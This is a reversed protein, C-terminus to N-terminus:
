RLSAFTRMVPFPRDRAGNDGFFTNYPWDRYSMFWTGESPNQGTELSRDVRIKHSLREPTEIPIQSPFRYLGCVGHLCGTNDPHFPPEEQVTNVPSVGQASSLCYPAPERHRSKAKVTGGNSEYQNMDQNWGMRPSPGGHVIPASISTSPTRILSSPASM